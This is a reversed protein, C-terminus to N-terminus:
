FKERMKRLRGCPLRMTWLKNVRPCAKETAPRLMRAWLPNLSFTPVRLAQRVIIATVSTAAPSERPHIALPFDSVRALAHQNVPCQPRRWPRSKPAPQAAPQRMLQTFAIRQIATAGGTSTFTASGTLATPGTGDDRQGQRRSPLRSLDVFSAARPPQGQAADTKSSSEENAM